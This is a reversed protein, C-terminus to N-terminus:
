RKPILRKKRNDTKLLTEKEKPPLTTSFPVRLQLLLLLNQWVDITLTQWCPLFFQKEEKIQINHTM